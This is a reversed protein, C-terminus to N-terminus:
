EYDHQNDIATAAATLRQLLKENRINEKEENENSINSIQHNEQGKNMLNNLYKHKEKFQEELEIGILESNDVGIPGRKSRLRVVKDILYM